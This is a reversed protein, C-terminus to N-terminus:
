PVPLRLFIVTGQGPAAEILLTANIDLARQQINRLGNGKPPMRIDFGKGNDKVILQLCRDKQLLSIDAEAAEAYKALNNVSEKFILYLNHRTDMSLKLAVLNEDFRIRVRINKTELTQAAFQRMRAFLHKLQDNQPNVSWIIDAMNTIMERTDSSIKQLQQRVVLPNSVVEKQMINSLMSIGSLTSGIDDHLDRAIKNRLQQLQQWQRIRYRYFAAILLSVVLLLLMYFWWTEYFAPVVVLAIRVENVTLEGAPTMARIRLLYNGPPLKYLRLLNQTGLDNWENDLGDLKYQFGAGASAAIDSLAFEFQLMKDSPRLLVAAPTDLGFLQLNDKKGSRLLATLRIGTNKRIGTVAAPNIRVVGNMVGMYIIGGPTRYASHTNFEENCLGDDLYYNNCTLSQINLRSLGHATGLWCVSDNEPVMNYITNDPLGRFRTFSSIKDQLPDLLQIGAGMTGIVLNGAATALLCRVNNTALAPLSVTNYTKILRLNSDLCFLGQQAGLWTKGGPTQLMSFIRAAALRGGPMSYPSLTLTNTQISYLYLGSGAGVLLRDADLRLLSLGEEVSANGPNHFFNTAIAGTAPHFKCFGFNESAVYYWGKGAPLLQAPVFVAKLSSATNGSVTDLTIVSFYTAICLGNKGPYIARTTIPLQPLNGSQLSYSRLFSNTRTITVIGGSTCLWFRREDWAFVSYPLYVQPNINKWLEYKEINGSPLDVTFYEQLKTALWLQTGQQSAYYIAGLSRALKKWFPINELTLTLTNIISVDRDHFLLLYKNDKYFVGSIEGIRYNWEIRGTALNLCIANYPMILWIRNGGTSIVRLIRQALNFSGSIRLRFKLQEQGSQTYVNGAMDFATLTQPDTKAMACVPAITKQQEVRGNRLDLCNLGNATGIWLLNSDALLCTIASSSLHTPGRAIVNFLEFQYGNYRFLGNETGLWLFGDATRAQSTVHNDPLGGKIFSLQFTNYQGFSAACAAQLLLLLILRSFLPYKRYRSDDSCLLTRGYRTFRM